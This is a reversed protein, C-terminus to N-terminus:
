QSADLFDQETFTYAYYGTVSHKSQSVIVKKYSIQNLLNRNSSFPIGNQKQLDPRYHISSKQGDFIVKVSDWGQLLGWYNLKPFENTGMGKMEAVITTDKPLIEIHDEMEIRYGIMKITHNTPNIYKIHVNKYGDVICSGTSLLALLLFILTKKM